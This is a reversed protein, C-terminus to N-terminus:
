FETVPYRRARMTVCLPESAPARYQESPVHSSIRYFPLRLAKKARDGPQMIYLEVMLINSLTKPAHSLRRSTAHPIRSSPAPRTMSATTCSISSLCGRGSAETGSSFDSPPYKGATVLKDKTLKPQDEMPQSLFMVSLPAIARKVLPSTSLLVVTASAELFSTSAMGRLIEVQSPELGDRPKDDLVCLAGINIGSPTIIPVGAYFRAKPGDKVYPRDCFVVIV